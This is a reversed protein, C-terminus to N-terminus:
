IQQLGRYGFIALGQLDPYMSAHTIGFRTSLARRIEKKAQASIRITFTPTARDQVIRSTTNMSLSVSTAARVEDIAWTGAKQGDGPAKRYKANAGSRVSPVGGVLFASNQASIRENYSPPRWVSPLQMGWEKPQLHSWPLERGGWFDDLKLSRRTADFALLRGDTEPNANGAQDPKQEVAFWLAILPNFTVDIFRTHGGYHQVHALIELASLNGFRWRDRSAELLKLEAKVMQSETPPSGKTATLHRYLSSHLAYKADTVGRWVLVRKETSVYSIKEILGLCSKWDEAVSEWPDFFSNGSDKDLTVWKPQDNGIM